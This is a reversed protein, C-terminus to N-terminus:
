AQEPEAVEELPLEPSETSEDDSGSAAVPSATLLKRLRGAAGEVKKRVEDREKELTAVKSELEEIRGSDGKKADLEDRLRTADAELERIKGALKFNETKLLAMRETTRGILEDLYLIPDKSAM